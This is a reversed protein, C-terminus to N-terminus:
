QCSRLFFYTSFISNGEIMGYFPTSKFSRTDKSGGLTYDVKVPYDFLRNVYARVASKVTVGANAAAINELQFLIILAHMLSADCTKNCVMALFYAKDESCLGIAKDVEDHSRLPLESQNATTALRAVSMHRDAMIVDHLARIADTNKVINDNM